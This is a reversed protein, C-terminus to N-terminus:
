KQIYPIVRWVEIGQVLFALIPWTIWSSERFVYKYFMGILLTYSLIGWRTAIGFFIMLWWWPIAETHWWFCHRLAAATWVGAWCAAIFLLSRIIVGSIGGLFSTAPEINSETMEGHGVDATHISLGVVPSAIWWQTNHM